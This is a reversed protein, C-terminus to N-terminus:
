AMAVGSVLQCTRNFPLAVCPLLCPRRKGRENKRPGETEGSMAQWRVGLVGEGGV